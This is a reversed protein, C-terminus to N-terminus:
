KVEKNSKKFLTFCSVILAWFCTSVIVYIAVIVFERDPLKHEIRHLIWWAPYLTPSCFLVYCFIKKIEEM